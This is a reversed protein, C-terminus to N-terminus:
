QSGAYNPFRRFETQQAHSEVADGVGDRAFV